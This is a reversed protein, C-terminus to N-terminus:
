SPGELNWLFPTNHGTSYSIITCSFDEVPDPLILPFSLKERIVDHFDTECGSPDFFAKELSLVVDRGRVRLLATETGCEQQSLSPV